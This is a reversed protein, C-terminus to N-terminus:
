PLPGVASITYKKIDAGTSPLNASVKRWEAMHDSAFHGDLSEQSDWLEYLRILSADYPDATFAYQECGPEQLTAEVM